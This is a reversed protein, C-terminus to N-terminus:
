HSKHLTGVTRINNHAILDSSSSPRIRNITVIQIQRCKHLSLDSGPRLSERTTKSPPTQSPTAHRQVQLRVHERSKGKWRLVYRANCFTNKGTVFINNGSINM